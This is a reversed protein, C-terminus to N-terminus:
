GHRTCGSEKPKEAPPADYKRDHFETKFALTLVEEATFFGIGPLAEGTQM